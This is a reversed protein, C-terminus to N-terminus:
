NSEGPEATTAAVRGDIICHYTHPSDAHRYCRSEMTLHAVEIEKGCHKCNM